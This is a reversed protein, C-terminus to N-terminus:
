SLLQPRKSSAHFLTPTAHTFFKQSTLDYTEKIRQLDGSDYHIGISVRMFLYQIREKIQGNIKILYAKELTKFSFYDFTYDREHIIMNDLEKKHTNIFKYIADAIINQDKHNYIDKITKSFSKNTNKHNNSIITRSGLIGYEPQITSKSTCINASLEDLESTTIGNCIENCVKQAVEYINVNNLKPTIDCLSQLRKTIKDFSVLEQSGNRKQVNM